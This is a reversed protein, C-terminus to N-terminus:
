AQQEPRLGLTQISFHAHVTQWEGGERIQVTTLRYHRTNNMRMDPGSLWQKNLGGYDGTTLAM